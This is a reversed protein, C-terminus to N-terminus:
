TFFRVKSWTDSSTLFPRASDDDTDKRIVGNGEFCMCIDERCVKKVVDLAMPGSIGAPSMISNLRGAVRDGLPAVVNAATLNGDSDFQIAVMGTGNMCDQDSSANIWGEYMALELVQVSTKKIAKAGLLENEIGAIYGARGGEDNANYEQTIRDKLEQRTDGQLYVNITSTRLESIWDAVSRSTAAKSARDVEDWLADIMDVIPGVDVETAAKVAAVAAKKASKIGSKFATGVIDPTAEKLSATQMTLQFADLAANYGTAIRTQAEVIADVYDNITQTDTAIDAARTDDNM